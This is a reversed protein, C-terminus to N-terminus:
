RQCWRVLEDYSIAEQINQLTFKVTREYNAHTKDKRVCVITVGEERCCCEVICPAQAMSQKLIVAQSPPMGDMPPLHLGLERINKSGHRCEYMLQPQGDTVVLQFDITHHSKWKFIKPQMGLGIPENEPMFIYGDQPWASQIQALQHLRYCPKVALACEHMQIHPILGQLHELRESYRKKKWDVGKAAVVDFAVFTLDPLLEGDVLTGMCLDEYQPSSVHIRFFTGARDVLFAYSSYPPADIYGMLLLYRTGDLKTSVHYRQQHLKPLDKRLISVPSPVPVNNQPCYPMEWLQQLLRRADQVDVTDQEITGVHVYAEM